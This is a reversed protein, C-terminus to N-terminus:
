CPWHNGKALFHTAYDHISQALQVIVNGSDDTTKLGDAKVIPWTSPGGVLRWKASNKKTYYTPQTGEDVHFDVRFVLGTENKATILPAWNMERIVKLQLAEKEGRQM